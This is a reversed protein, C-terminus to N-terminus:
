FNENYNHLKFLELSQVPLNDPAFMNCAWRGPQPWWDFAYYYRMWRGASTLPDAPFAVALVINLAAVSHKTPDYALVVRRAALDAITYVRAM